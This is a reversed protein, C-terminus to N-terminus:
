RLAQLRLMLLRVADARLEEELEAERARREDAGGDPDAFTRQADLSTRQIRTEGEADVVSYDITYTLRYDLVDGGAGVSATDRSSGRGHLTLVWEAGAASETYQGGGGEIARRVERRLESSGAEDVVQIVRDDLSIGGPAGRLQWGCASLALALVAVGLLGVVGQSRNRWSLRM